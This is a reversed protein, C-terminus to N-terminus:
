KVFTNSATRLGDTFVELVYSGPKLKDVGMNLFQANTKQQMMVVGSMNSIRVVSNGKLGSINLVDKVPNPYFSLANQGAPKVIVIESYKFEGATGFIKLRYYTIATVNTPDTFSYSNRQAANVFGVTSFSIRDTSKEVEYREIAIESNVTWSITAKAGQLLAAVSRIDVPLVTGTRTVIFPSFNDYSNTASNSSNDGTGAGDEWATGDHRAVGILVNPYTAFSSGELSNTWNLTIPTIGTGSVRDINWVADVVSSKQPASFATGGPTGELTVGEFVSLAFDATTPPAVTVPLYNTATGIPFTATTALQDIRLVGLNNGTRNSVIYKANSFPAGAIPNGSLIRVTDLARINLTGANLTLTGSIRINYN